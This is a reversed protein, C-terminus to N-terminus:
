GRVKKILLEKEGPSLSKDGMITNELDSMAKFFEASDPSLGDLRSAMGTNRIYDTFMKDMEQPTKQVLLTDKLQAIQADAAEREPSGEPLKAAKTQATTLSLEAAARSASAKDLEIKRESVGKLTDESYLSQARKAIQADMEPNVGNLMDELSVGSDKMDALTAAAQPVTVGTTEAIREIQTQVYNKSLGSGETLGGVDDILAQAVDGSAEYGDARQVAAFGQDKAASNADAQNAAAMSAAVLPDAVTPPAVVGAMPGNALRGAEEAAALAAAAPVGPTRLVDQQVGVGTINGPDQIAALTGAATVESVRKAEATDIATQGASQSDWATQMLKLGDAPDMYLSNKIADALRAAAPGGAGAPNESVPQSGGPVIYEFHMPDKRGKFDGGWKLGYKAAIESVNPPLDTTESGLGNTEANLDVALGKGHESLKGTKSGRIPRYNFGGSSKIGYGTGELETLFGQFAEAAGKNVQWSEGNGSEISVLNDKQWQPDDSIGTGGWRTDGYTRGEESAAIVEGTLSRRESRANTADLYEAATRGEAANARGTASTTSDINARDQGYGLVGKRLGMITEQMKPSFSKGMLADSALYANLEDESGLKAIDNLIANDAKAMQGEQYKGLLGKASEMGSDFSKAANALIQSTSSFDPAAVQEITLRAM